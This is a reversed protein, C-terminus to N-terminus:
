RGSPLDWFGRRAEVAAAEPTLGIDALQAPSLAKLARRERWIAMALFVRGLIRGTTGVAFPARPSFKPSLGSFPALTTAHEM